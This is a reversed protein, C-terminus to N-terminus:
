FMGLVNRTVKSRVSGFSTMNRFYLNKLNFDLM